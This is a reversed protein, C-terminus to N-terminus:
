HYFKLLKHNDQTLNIRDVPPLSSSTYLINLNIGNLVQDWTQVIPNVQEHLEKTERLVRNLFSKKFTDDNESKLADIARACYGNSCIPLYSIMNVWISIPILPEGNKRRLANDFVCEDSNEIYSFFAQETHCCTQPEFVPPNKENDRAAELNIGRAEFDQVLKHMFSATYQNHDLVFKEQITQSLFRVGPKRRTEKIKRHNDFLPLNEYANGLAFLPRDFTEEADKLFTARPNDEIPLWGSIFLRPSVIESVFTYRDDYFAYLNVLMINRPDEFHDEKFERINKATEQNSARLQLLFENEEVAHSSFQDRHM